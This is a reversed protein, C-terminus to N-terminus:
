RNFVGDCREEAVRVALRGEREKIVNGLFVGLTNEGGGNEPLTEGAGEFWWKKGGFDRTCAKAMAGYGSGLAEESKVNETGLDAEVVVLELVENAHTEAKRKGKEGGRGGVVAVGTAMEIRRGLRERGSQALDAGKTEMKRRATDELHPVGPMVRNDPDDPFGGTM